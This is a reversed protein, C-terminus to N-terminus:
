RKGIPHFIETILDNHSRVNFESFLNAASCSHNPIVELITGPIPFDQSDDTKEIIGHEESLRSIKLYPYGKILGHGQLNDMGHTGKDLNLAKSGADIVIHDTYKGIVTTLISFACDKEECVGLEIQMADFFVYNGPRCENIESFKSSILATPTSGVSLVLNVFGLETLVQNAKIISNAEQEGIKKLELQNQSSYAHGAHTFIGELKLFDSQKIKNGLISLEESEPKLGCRNHGSDIEIRINLPKKLQDALSSLSELHFNSDIASSIKCNQHLHLYRSLKNRGIIPYAIFIDNYGAKYFDEAEQLTATTIGIAGEKIQLAAIESSKHTKIHPRIAVKSRKLEEAFFTINRELIKKDIIAAPTKLRELDLKM